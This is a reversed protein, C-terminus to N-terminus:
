VPLIWASRTDPSVFAAPVIPINVGLSNFAARIATAHASETSGISAAATAFNPNKLKAVEQTYAIAADVELALALKAINVDSDINGEKNKIYSSLDYSSLPEAPKGGLDLVVKRLLAAHERHDAQNRLALALVAQGVTTNTLKGAAFDYAWVAQYEYFLANNLVQLDNKANSSYPKSKGRGIIEASEAVLPIGFATAMGVVAGSVLIGRRSLLRQQRNNQSKILNDM